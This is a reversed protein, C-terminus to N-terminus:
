FDDAFWSVFSARGDVGNKAPFLGSHLLPFPGTEARELKSPHFAAVSGTTEFRRGHM